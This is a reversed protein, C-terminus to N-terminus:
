WAVKAPWRPAAPPPGVLEWHQWLVIDRMRLAALQALRLAKPAGNVILAARLTDLAQVTDSDLMDDRICATTPYPVGVQEAAAIRYVTVVREDIVPFLAPRKMALLKTAKAGKMGSIAEFHVRLATAAAHLPSGPSADELRADIPVCHWPASPGHRIIAAAEIATMGVMRSGVMRGIDSIDVSDPASMGGFDYNALCADDFVLAAALAEGDSVIYSGFPFTM